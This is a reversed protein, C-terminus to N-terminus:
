EFGVGVRGELGIRNLDIRLSRRKDVALTNTGCIRVRYPSPGEPVVRGAGGILTVTVTLTVSLTLTLTLNLNLTVIM